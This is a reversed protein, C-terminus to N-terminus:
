DTAQDEGFHNNILAIIAQLCNDAHQIEEASIEIRLMSGKKAGLGLIGMISAGNAQNDNHYFTVQAPFQNVVEVLQSSARIHLGLKNPILIEHSIQVLDTM